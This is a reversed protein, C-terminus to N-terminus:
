FSPSGPRRCATRQARRPRPRSGLDLAPVWSSLRCARGNYPIPGDRAGARIRGNYKLPESVLDARSVRLSLLVNALEDSEDWLINLSKVRTAAEEDNSPRRNVLKYTVEYKM